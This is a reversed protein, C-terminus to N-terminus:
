VGETDSKVGQLWCLVAVSCTEGRSVRVESLGRIDSLAGNNKFIGMNRGSTRINLTINIHYM